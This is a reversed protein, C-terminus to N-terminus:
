AKGADPRSRQRSRRVREALDALGAPTKLWCARCLSGHRGRHPKSCSSCTLPQWAVGARQRERYRRTRDASSDPSVM